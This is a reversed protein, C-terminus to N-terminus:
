FEYFIGANVGFNLLRDSSGISMGFISYNTLVELQFSLKEALSFTEGLTLLASVNANTTFRKMETYTQHFEKFGGIIFHFKENTEEKFVLYPVLGGRFYLDIKDSNFFKYRLSVPIDICHFLHTIEDTIPNIEHNVRMFVSDAYSVQTYKSICGRQSYFISAEIGIKDNLYRILNIGISYGFIGGEKIESIGGYSDVEYEFFRVPTATM